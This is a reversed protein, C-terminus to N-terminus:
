LQFKPMSKPSSKFVGKGHSRDYPGDTETLHRRQTNAATSEETSTTLAPHRQNFSKGVTCELFWPGFFVLLNLFFKMKFLRLRNIFQNLM